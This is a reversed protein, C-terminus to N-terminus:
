FIRVRICSCTNLTVEEKCRFTCLYSFGEGWIASRLEELIHLQM